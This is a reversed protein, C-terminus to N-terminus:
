SSPRAPAPPRTRVARWPRRRCIATASSSRSRTSPAGLKEAAAQGIVTYAGNGIEHGAIQVRVRGDRQLRVRAAAPAMQTPYCSTACGYGVLWDGDAMSKPDAKRQSWGFAKAGEDFCAMLSRSTFPNGKIPEKMTDNVRRLEIPDMKLEYALEEMASELAFM